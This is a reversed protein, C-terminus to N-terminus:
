PLSEHRALLAEFKPNGWLPEWLPDVRLEPVTVPNIYTMGLLRDVLDLAEDVRGTRAYVAALTEQDEPGSFADKATLEVALKAERIAEDRRGLSAYLAGLLSHVTANSPATEIIGEAARAATETARRSEQSNGLKAQSLGIFFNKYATSLPDAENVGEIVQLAGAWNKEIAYIKFWALHFFLQREGPEDRLFRRAVAPDGTEAIANDVRDNMLDDNRPELAMAREVLANAKDWRRRAGYNYALNQLGESDRPDLEMATELAQISEELKGQRRLIYGRARHAEANNPLEAVVATFEALARDYDRFGYYYYYGRALRTFPHDPDVAEAGEMARRARALREETRDMFRYGDAHGRCLGYWAALFKPDLAVAQELLRTRERDWEVFSPAKLDLAKLYAQYAELNETPREELHERESALLTVDLENIVRGAIDSQIQFIDDIKRDYTETWVGVDDAARVLQPTIRVRDEGNPSPAWRVTGELVYDVGLDEGIQKMTKGSRDYQTATTRSIVGLGSVGALRATIEESIGAAFYAQDSPGLNEFPFVVAMLRHSPAKPTATASPTENEEPAAANRAASWPRWIGLVAAVAIVAGVGLLAPMRSRPREAGIAAGPDSGPTAVSSV